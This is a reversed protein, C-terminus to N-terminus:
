ARPPRELGFAAHSALAPPGTPAFESSRNQPAAAVPLSAPLQIAGHHCHGHMCAGGEHSPHGDGPFHGTETAAAVLVGDAAAPQHEELCLAADLTPGLALFVLALACLAGSWRKIQGSMGGM